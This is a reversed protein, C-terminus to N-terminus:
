INYAHCFSNRESISLTAASIGYLLCPVAQSRILKLIVDIPATTGLRGLITNVSM